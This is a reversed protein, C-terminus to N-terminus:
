ELGEHVKFKPIVVIGKVRGTCVEIVKKLGYTERDLYFDKYGLISQEYTDLPFYLFRYNNLDLVPKNDVKEPLYRRSASFKGSHVVGITFEQEDLSEVVQKQRRVCDSWTNGIYITLIEAM